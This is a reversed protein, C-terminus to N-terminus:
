NTVRVPPSSFMLLPSPTSLLPFLNNPSPHICFLICNFTYLSSLLSSLLQCETQCSLLFLFFILLLVELICLIPLIYHLPLYYEWCVILKVPDFNINIIIIGEWHRWGSIIYNRLMSQQPLCIYTFLMSWLIEIM